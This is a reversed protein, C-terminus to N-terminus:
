LPAATRPDPFSRYLSQPRSKFQSHTPVLFHGDETSPSCLECLRLDYLGDIESFEVTADQFVIGRLALLRTAWLKPTGSALVLPTLNDGERITRRREDGRAMAM